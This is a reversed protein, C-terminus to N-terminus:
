SKDCRSFCLHVDESARLRCARSPLSTLSRRRFTPEPEPAAGAAPPAAGAAPPAASAAGASSALASSFSPLFVGNDEGCGDVRASGYECLGVVVHAETEEVLRRAWDPLALDSFGVEGRTCQPPDLSKPVTVAGSCAIKRQQKEDTRGRPEKGSAM